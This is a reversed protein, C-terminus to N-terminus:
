ENKELDRVEKYILFLGTFVGILSLIITFVPNSNALTEDLWNGLWACLGIIVGMQIAVTSFRLYTNLQGKREKEPNEKKM